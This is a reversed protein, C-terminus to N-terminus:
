LYVKSTEYAILLGHIQEYAQSALQMAEEVIQRHATGPELFAYCLILCWSIILLSPLAEYALLLIELETSVLERQITSRFPQLHHCVTVFVTVGCYFLVTVFVSCFHRRNYTHLVMSQWIYM